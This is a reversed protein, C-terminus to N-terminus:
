QQLPGREDVLLRLLLPLKLLRPLQHFSNSICSQASIGDSSTHSRMRGQKDKRSSARVMAENDRAWRAAASCSSELLPRSSYMARASDSQVAQSRSAWSWTNARWSKGKQAAREREISDGPEAVTSTAGFVSRTGTGPGAEIATIGCMQANVHVLRRPPHLIFSFTRRM